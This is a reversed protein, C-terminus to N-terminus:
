DRIMRLITAGEKTIKALRHFEAQLAHTFLTRLSYNEDHIQMTNVVRRAKDVLTKPLAVSIRKLTIEDPARM